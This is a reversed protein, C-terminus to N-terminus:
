GIAPHADEGAIDAAGADLDGGDLALSPNDLGRRAHELVLRLHEVGELAALQLAVHHDDDAILPRAGVPHRLQVLERGREAHELVPAEADREDGIAAHGARAALHRARDVDRGLRQAAARDAADM